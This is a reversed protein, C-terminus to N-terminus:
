GNTQRLSNIDYVHCKIASDEKERKPKTNQTLSECKSCLETSQQKKCSDCKVKRPEHDRLEDCVSIAELTFNVGIDKIDRKWDALKVKVERDSLRKNPPTVLDHYLSSIRLKYSVKLTERWKKLMDLIESRCDLCLSYSAMTTLSIETQETLNREDLWDSIKRIAVLEAHERDNTNTRSIFRESEMGLTVHSAAVVELSDHSQVRYFRNKDTDTLKSYDSLTETYHQFILKSTINVANVCTIIKCGTTTLLGPNASSKHCM